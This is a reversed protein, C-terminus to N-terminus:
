PAALGIIRQAEPVAAPKAEGVPQRTFYTEFRTYSVHAVGITVGLLVSAYGCSVIIAPGTLHEAIAM